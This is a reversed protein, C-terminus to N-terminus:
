SIFAPRDSWWNGFIEAMTEQSMMIAGDNLVNPGVAFTGVAFLQRLLGRNDPPGLVTYETGSDAEAALEGFYPRSDRDFLIRR